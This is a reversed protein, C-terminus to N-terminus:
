VNPVRLQPAVPLRCPPLKGFGLELVHGLNPPRRNYRVPLVGCRNYSDHHPPPPPDDTLMVGGYYDYGEYGEYAEAPYGAGDHWSM